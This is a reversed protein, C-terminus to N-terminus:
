LRGYFVGAKLIVSAAFLFASVFILVAFPVFPVQRNESVPVKLEKASLVKKIREVITGKM